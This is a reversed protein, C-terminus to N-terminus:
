AYATWRVRYRNYITFFPKLILSNGVEDDYGSDSNSFTAVLKEIDPEATSVVSYSSSSSSATQVPGWRNRRQTSSAKPQSGAESAGSTRGHPISTVYAFAASPQSPQADGSALPQLPPSQQSPQLNSLTSSLKAAIRIAEAASAATAAANTPVVASSILKSSSSSSTTVPIVSGTALFINTLKFERFNRLYDVKTKMNM